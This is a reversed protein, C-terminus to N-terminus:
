FQDKDQIEQFVHSVQSQSQNRIVEMNAGCGAILLAPLFVLLLRSITKM